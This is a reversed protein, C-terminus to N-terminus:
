RRPVFVGSAPSAGTVADAALIVAATTYATREEDPFTARQPYVLGTLYAGDDCRHGRTTALLATDLDAVAAHAIACEATEAATVWPETSVCRVGRGALVFTDWQDALRIKADEGTLVGCLVPYYWDMAWESKDAFTPPGPEARVSAGLRDQHRRWRPQPDDLVKALRQACELSHWISSSGTLLAYDWTRTGDAAVAWLV